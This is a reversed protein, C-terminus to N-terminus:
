VQMLNQCRNKPSFCLKAKLTPFSLAPPQPESSSLTTAACLGKVFGMSQTQHAKLHNNACPPPWRDFPKSM